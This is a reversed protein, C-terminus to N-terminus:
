GRFVRLPQVRMSPPLWAGVSSRFVMLVSVGLAAFSTWALIRMASPVGPYNFLLDAVVPTFLMIVLVLASYISRLNRSHHKAIGVLLPYSLALTVIWGTLLMIPWFHAMSSATAGPNIQKVDGMDPELRETLREFISGLTAFSYVICIAATVVAVIWAGLADRTLARPPPGPDVPRQPYRETIERDKSTRAIEALDEADLEAQTPIRDPDDPDNGPAPNTM